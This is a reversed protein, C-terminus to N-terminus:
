IFFEDLGGSSDRTSNLDGGVGNLRASCNTLDHNSIVNLGLTVTSHNNESQAWITRFIM